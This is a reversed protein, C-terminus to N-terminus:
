CKNKVILENYLTSGKKCSITGVRGTIYVVKFTCRYHDLVNKYRYYNRFSRLRLGISFGTNVTKEKYVAVEDILEARVIRCAINKQKKEVLLRLCFIFAFFLAIAITIVDIPIDYVIYFVLAIFILIVASFMDVGGRM